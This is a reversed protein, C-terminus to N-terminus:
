SQAVRLSDYCSAVCHTLELRSRWANRQLSGPRSPARRRCPRPRPRRQRPPSAVRTRRASRARPGRDPAGAPPRRPVQAVVAESSSLDVCRICGRDRRDRALVAGVRHQVRCVRAEVRRDERRRVVGAARVEVHRHRERAGPHQEAVRLEGRVLAPRGAPLEREDADADLRPEGVDERAVRRIM